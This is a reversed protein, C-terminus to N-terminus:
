IKSQMVTTYIKMHVKKNKVYEYVTINTEKRKWQIQHM